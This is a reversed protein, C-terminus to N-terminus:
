SQELGIVGCAIRAGANGTKLSEPNGGKGLDDREAHLVIGRGLISRPGSLEIRSDVFREAIVGWNDARVNGLDGTHRNIDYRGGHQHLGGDDFHPGMSTCGNETNGYEHVHLGHDGPSVGEVWVTVHTPQGPAAQEFRVIGRVSTLWGRGRQQSELKAIARM